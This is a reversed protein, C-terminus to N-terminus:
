LGKYMLSELAKLAQKTKKKDCTQLQQCSELIYNKIKAWSDPFIVLSSQVWQTWNNGQYPHQDDIEFDQGKITYFVHGSAPGTAVAFPVNPPVAACSNLLLLSALLGLLM